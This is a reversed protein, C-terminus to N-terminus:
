RTFLVSGIKYVIIVLTSLGALWASFKGLAKATKIPLLAEELKTDLEKRDIEVKSELAQTRRMHEKLQDTNIELIATNTALTERVHAMDDVLKNLLHDYSM